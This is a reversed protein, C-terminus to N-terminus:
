FAFSLDIEYNSRDAINTSLGGANDHTHHSGAITMSGMVYSVGFATSEQDNINSEYDVESTALSISMEESVAYSIGYGKYETDSAAVESDSKNM